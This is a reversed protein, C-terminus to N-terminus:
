DAPHVVGAVQISDLFTGLHREVVFRYFGTRLISSRMRLDHRTLWSVDAEGITTLSDGADAPRTAVTIPTYERLREHLERLFHPEQGKWGVVLVARAQELDSRMRELHEAPCSWSTDDKAAVPVALAPAVFAGGPMQVQSADALVHFSPLLRLGDEAAAIITNSDGGSFDAGDLREVEQGWNDSGHVKIVARDPHLYKGVSEFPRTLYSRLGDELLTDYNFTVYLVRTHHDQRWREIQSVFPLYATTGDGLEVGFKTTKDRFLAQLYYRFAMLHSSNVPYKPAEDAYTQLASELSVNTAIMTERVRHMMDAVPYRNSWYPDFEQSVLQSALPPRDRDPAGGAPRADYSAGAGLVVVLVQSM